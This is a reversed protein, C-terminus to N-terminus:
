EVEDLIAFFPKYVDDAPDIRLAKPDVTDCYDVPADTILGLPTCEDGEGMVLVAATALCDAVNTQEFRFPRGYLDKQLRYDRLGAFGAYGLAVGTVGWRLMQTRSDTFLIGLQKLGYRKLLEIRLEAAAKYSDTPLLILKGDGNSDDVGANAMFMGDKLTLWVLVTEHAWDSEEQILRLKQEVPATRSEALAAIKSTVVLVAGESLSPVHEQIFDALNEAERFLRTKIATVQM